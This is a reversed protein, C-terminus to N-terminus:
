VKIVQILYTIILLDECLCLLGFSCQFSHSALYSWSKIEKHSNCSDDFQSLRVRVATFSCQLGQVQGVPYLWCWPDSPLSDLSGWLSTVSGLPIPKATSPLASCKLVACSKQSTWPILTLSIPITQPPALTSFYLPFVIKLGTFLAATPQCSRWSFVTPSLTLSKVETWTFIWFKEMM